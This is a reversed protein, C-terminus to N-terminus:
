ILLMHPKEVLNKFEQLFRAGTAGDIVRHDCSLTVTMTKGPVIQGNKVVAKEILTGVALIGAEPENIIASFSTIGFMGLNSITFTGNSFEEPKLKRDRARQALSKITNSLELLSLSDANRVYPTLLGGDISVAIGIDIRGHQMIYDGQWSANVEPVITIAKATAKAIIDNLSISQKEGSKENAIKLEHNIRERLDSIPEADFEMTLYFHPINSKAQQLRSAITKRMGSLENREDAKVITSRGIKPSPSANYSLIDRKLIRGDPGSGPVDRIDIGKSLAISKALPSALLRGNKVHYKIAEPGVAAVSVSSKEIIVSEIKKEIKPEEKIEPKKEVQKVTTLRSKAEVILANIDEGEKGLIAIPMGVQLKTGEPAIIELLTGSDFAELEMVAKDTEVEVLLDGTAVKTGKAVLWKVIVGETMTPTLQTMESIIAM